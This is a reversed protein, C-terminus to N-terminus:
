WLHGHCCHTLDKVLHRLSRRHLGGARSGGPLLLTHHSVLALPLLGFLCLLGGYTELRRQGRRSQIRCLVFCSVCFVCCVVCLECCVVCVDRQVCVMRTTGEFEYFNLLVRM